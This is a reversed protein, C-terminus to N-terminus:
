ESGMKYHPGYVMSMLAYFRLAPTLPPAAVGKTLAPNLAFLLMRQTSLKVSNSGLVIRRSFVHSGICSFISFVM